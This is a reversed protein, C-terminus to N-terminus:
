KLLESKLFHICFFFIAMQPAIVSYRPSQLKYLLYTEKPKCNQLSHLEIGLAWVQNLAEHQELLTSLPVATSM